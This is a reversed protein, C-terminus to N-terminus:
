AGIHIIVAWIALLGLATGAAKIYPIMEGERDKRAAPDPM